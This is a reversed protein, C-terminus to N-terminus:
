LRRKAIIALPLSAILLLLLSSPEPVSVASITLKWKEDDGLGDNLIKGSPSTTSFTPASTSGTFLQPGFLSLDFDPLAAFAGGCLSSYFALSDTSAVGGIKLLKPTIIFGCSDSNGPIIAPKSSLEFTADLPGSLNFFLLQSSDAKAMSAGLFLGVSLVALKALMRFTKM